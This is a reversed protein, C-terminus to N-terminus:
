VTTLGSVQVVEIIAAQMLFYVMTSGVHLCVHVCVHVYVCVRVCICMCMCLCMIVFWIATNVGNEALVPDHHLLIIQVLVKM